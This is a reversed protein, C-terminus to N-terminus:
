LVLESTIAADGLGHDVLVICAGRAAWRAIAVTVAARADSDGGAYPEDLLYVDAQSLELMLLAVGLRQGGSLDSVRTHRLPFLRTGDGSELVGRAAAAARAYSGRRWAAIRLNMEVTLDAIGRQDQRLYAVRHKRAVADAPHGIISVGGVRIDGHRPRLFGAVARLLTSKGTGNAGRVGVVDHENGDLYVGQLVPTAGYALTVDEITLLSRVGM